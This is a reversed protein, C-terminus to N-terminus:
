MLLNPNLGQFCALTKQRFVELSFLSEARRRAKIQYTELLSPQAFLELLASALAASDNPPVLRGCGDNGVTEALGDVATAVVARGAAMAEIATLGFGEWRSPVVVVDMVSMLAVAQEWPQQGAWVVKGAIGLEAAQRELAIRDPGDGVLLLRATALENCVSAFAALLIDLAKEQRLRSIAGIVPGEPIRFQRCLRGPQTGALIRDIREIDVANHITVHRRQLAAPNAPDFLRSNGFWSREVAESVCIFKDCHGAAMRLLLKAKRGYPRGPQHVTALVRPVGALRAAIVPLFGPAMYQVHVVDPRLRRFIKRLEGIVRIARSRRDINLLELQVGAQQFETVMAADHEFYCCVIVQYGAKVLVRALYLSQTETGGRFLCPIAIIM